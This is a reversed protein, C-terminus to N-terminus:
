HVEQAAPSDIGPTGFPGSVGAPPRIDFISRGDESIRQHGAKMKAWRANSLCIEPGYSRKHYASPLVPPKRCTVADPNGEGNPEDFMPRDIVTKADPGLDRGKATLEAWISNPACAKPGFADSDSLKEPARCVISNPDGEGSPTVSLM